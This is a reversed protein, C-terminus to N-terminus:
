ISKDETPFEFKMLEKASWKIKDTLDIPFNELPKELFESLGDENKAVEYIMLLRSKAESFFREHHTGKNILSEFNIRLSELDQDDIRVQIENQVKKTETLSGIFSFIEYKLKLSHIINENDNTQQYLDICKDLFDLSLDFSAKIKDDVIEDFDLKIFDWTDYFHSIYNFQYLWEIRLRSVIGLSNIDNTSSLFELLRNAKEYFQEEISDWQKFIENKLTLDRTSTVTMLNLNLDHPLLKLEAELIRAYAYARAKLNEPEEIIIQEIKKYFDTLQTKSQNNKKLFNFEKEIKLFSGLDEREVLTQLEAEYTKKDLMGCQHKALLLTYQFMYRIKPELEQKRRDVQRLFDIAKHVRGKYFYAVGCVLNFIVPLSTQQSTRQEIEIIVDYKALNLLHLGHENLFAINQETSYVERNTDIIVESSSPNSNQLHSQVNRLLHGTNITHDYIEEIAVKDLSKEFRINFTDPFNGNKYKKLLNQYVQTSQEYYFRGTKNDFFFYYSPMPSNQLYNINSVEVPFSISGDKNKKSTNSSKLQVTFRFNTYFGKEKVEIALDIGKDRILEERIEFMGPEFLDSLKNRSITELSEQNSSKPLPLEFPNDPKNM